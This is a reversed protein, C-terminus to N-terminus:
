FKYKLQLALTDVTYHVGKHRIGPIFSIHAGIGSPRDEISLIPLLAPVWRRRISGDNRPVSRWWMMGAGGLDINIRASTYIASQIAAGIYVGPKYYSDVIAGAYFRHITSVFRREYEIGIGLNLENWDYAPVVHSMKSFHAVCGALNETIQAATISKGSSSARSRIKAVVDACFSETTDGPTAFFTGGIDEIWMNLRSSRDDFGSVNSRGHEPAGSKSFHHTIAGGHLSWGDAPGIEGSAHANGMSLIAVIAFKTKMM